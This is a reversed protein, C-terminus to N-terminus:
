KNNKIAKNVKSQRLLAGVKICEYAFEELVSKITRSDDNKIEDEAEKIFTEMAAKPDNLKNVKSIVKVQDFFSEDEIFKLYNKSTKAIGYVDRNQSNTMSYTEAKARDYDEQTLQIRHISNEKGVANSYYENEFKKLYELDEKSLKHGYDKSSDVFEEINRRFKYNKKM